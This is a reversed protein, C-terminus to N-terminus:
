EATALPVVFVQNDIFDLMRRAYHKPPQCSINRGCMLQGKFFTEARKRTYYPTLVDIIGIYCYRTPDTLTIVPMREVGSNGDKRSAENRDHVGVLLSYDMLGKRALFDLDNQLTERLQHRIAESVLLAGEDKCWDLDKYVPASKVREKKSAKRGVTSGKVDYRRDITQVGAFVNVMVLVRVLRKDSGARLSYLGLFRPLLTECFGKLPEPINEVDERTTGDPCTWSTSASSGVSVRSSRGHHNGRETARRRAAEIVEVYDPLIRLLTNWDEKTCSKAILQQDPSLFFFAGSKGAAAASGVLALTPETQGELMGMTAYYRAPAFGCAERVRAFLEPQPSQFDADQAASRGQRAIGTQLALAVDRMIGELKIGIKNEVNVKATAANAMNIKHVAKALSTRANRRRDDAAADKDGGAVAEGQPPAEIGNPGSVFSATGDGGPLVSALPEGKLASAQTTTEQLLSAGDVAADSKKPALSHMDPQLVFCGPSDFDEKQAASPGHLASRLPVQEQLVKAIKEEKWTSATPSRETDVHLSVVSPSRADGCPGACLEYNDKWASGGQNCDERCFQAAGM